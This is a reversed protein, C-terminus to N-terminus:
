PFGGSVVDIDGIFAIRDPEGYIVEERNSQLEQAMRPPMESLVVNGAISRQLRSPAGPDCDSWGQITWPQWMARLIDAAPCDRKPNSNGSSKSRLRKLNKRRPSLSKGKRPSNKSANFNEQSEDMGVDSTPNKRLIQCGRFNFTGGCVDGSSQPLKKSTQRVEYYRSDYMVKAVSDFCIFRVDEFIPFLPLIGDLMRAKLVARPYRECEVACVTRWGLLKGGLIGGGAGAFLALENM